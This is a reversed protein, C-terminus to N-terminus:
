EAAHYIASRRLFLFIKCLRVAHYRYSATDKFACRNILFSRSDGLERRLRFCADFTNGAVFLCFARYIKDCCFTDHIDAATKGCLFVKCHTLLECLSQAALHAAGTRHSFIILPHRFGRIKANGTYLYFRLKQDRKAYGPLYLM